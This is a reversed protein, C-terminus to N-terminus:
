VTMSFAEEYRKQYLYQYTCKLTHERKAQAVSYHFDNTRSTETKKLLRHFRDADGYRKGLTNRLEVSDDYSLYDNGEAYVPIPSTKFKKTVTRNHVPLLSKLLVKSVRIDPDSRKAYAESVLVPPPLTQMRNVMQKLFLLPINSNRVLSCFLYQDYYKQDKLSATQKYENFLRITNKLSSVAFIKLLPSYDELIVTGETDKSYGLCEVAKEVHEDAGYKTVYKTSSAPNSELLTIAKKHTFVTESQEYIKTLVKEKLDPITIIIDLKHPVDVVECYFVQDVTKTLLKFLPIPIDKHSFLAPLINASRVPSFLVGKQPFIKNLTEALDTMYWFTVPSLESPLTTAKQPHAVQLTLLITQEVDMESETARSHYECLTPNVCEVELSGLKLPTRDMVFIGESKCSM